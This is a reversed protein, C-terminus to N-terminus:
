KRSKGLNRGKGMGFLIFFLICGMIGGITNLLLDDVDFRGVRSLLQTIEIALSFELSLLMTLLINRCRTFLRPLFMGFPIFVVVNGVVNILFLYWSHSQGYHYFRKIERFLTLNYRYEEVHGTRGFAEAFFLMYFLVFLYAIFCVWIWANKGKKSAAMSNMILTSLRKLQIM